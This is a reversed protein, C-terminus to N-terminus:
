QAEARSNDLASVSALMGLAQVRGCALGSCRSARAGDSSLAGRVEALPLGMCCRLGTSHQALARLCTQRNLGM